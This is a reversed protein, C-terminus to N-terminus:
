RLATRRPRSEDHIPPSPVPPLRRVPSKEVARRTHAGYLAGSPIRVEGMSNREMRYGNSM